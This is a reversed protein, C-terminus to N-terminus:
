SVFPDEIIDEEDYFTDLTHIRDDLELSSVIPPDEQRWEKNHIPYMWPYKKKKAERRIKYLYYIQIGMLIANLILLSNSEIRIAYILWVMAGILAYIRLNKINKQLFSLIVLVNGMWGIVETITM